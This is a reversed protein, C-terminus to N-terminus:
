NILTEYKKVFVLPSNNSLISNRNNISIENYTTMCMKYLREIAYSIDQSDHPNFLVGNIGDRVISANDCVDGCAVPLGCSMAECLVNPYGEYVSPLCFADALQYEDVINTKPEIFEFKDEIRYEKIKEKCEDYYQSLSQNGVWRVSIDCGNDIAIKVAEIYKLVNKQPVVRGVTLLKLTTSIKENYKNPRFKEIDVFNTITITKTNLHKYHKSIFNQQSQSNPVIHDAFRYLFFKIRERISLVQTTNRESVILNYKCGLIKCLCATINAGDMYSIVTDPSATKLEKRIIIIKKLISDCGSLYRHKVNNEQLLHLYFETKHYYWVEVDYGQQKLLVALGCLQREAGGSGLGDILCIIKKMNTKKHQWVIGM